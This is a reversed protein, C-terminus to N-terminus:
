AGTIVAVIQDACIKIQEASTITPEGDGSQAGYMGFGAHCGGEIVAEWLDTPLKRKNEEYKERNMVHDESGFLSLVKIQNNSLDETSYAGLLILGDYAGDHKSLEAAAMAGGLSHGGIYWHSIDPFAERVDDAAHVDLVALRLPMKCLVCFIGNAAIERMLATYATHEVKGGPYFILGVKANGPDFVMSGSELMQETVSPWVGYAEIAGTDAPYFKGLYILCAGLLLGLVLVAIAICITTRKRRNEKRYMNGGFHVHEYYNYHKGISKDLASGFLDKMIKCAEQWDSGPWFCESGNWEEKDYRLFVGM